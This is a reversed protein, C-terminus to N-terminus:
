LSGDAHAHHEIRTELTFMDMGARSDQVVPSVFSTQEFYPSAELLGILASSSKSLGELRLKNESLDFSKLWTNDPLIGTLEKLILTTSPTQQKLNNVTSALELTLNADSKLQEVQGAKRQADTTQRELESLRHSLSWFPFIISVACLLLFISGLIRAFIETTNGRTPHLDKSLLNYSQAQSESKINELGYDYCIIDIPMGWAMFEDFFYNLKKKTICTLEVYIQNNEKNKGLLRASYYAQNANLPTYRDLEYAIVQNLNEQAAIPLSLNRRLVQHHNLLLVKKASQWNSHEEFFAQCQIKGENHLYFHALKKEVGAEMGYFDVQFNTYRIFLLAQRNTFFLLRFWSPMLISLENIWWHWFNLIMM